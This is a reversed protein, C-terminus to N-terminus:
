VVSKRDRELESNGPCHGLGRSGPTAAGRLSFAVVIVVASTGAEPPSIFRGASDAFIEDGEGARDFPLPCRVPPPASRFCFLNVARTAYAAYYAPHTTAFLPFVRAMRTPPPGAGPMLATMAAAVM